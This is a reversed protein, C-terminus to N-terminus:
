FDKRNSLDKGKEMSRAAQTNDTMDNKEEKYASDSQTMIGYKCGSVHNDELRAQISHLFIGARYNERMTNGIVLVEQSLGALNLGDGEIDAERSGGVGRVGEILNNKIFIKAGGGYVQIGYASAGSIQNEELNLANQPSADQQVDHITIARYPHTMFINKFIQGTVFGTTMLGARRNNSFYNRQITSVVARQGVANEIWLGNAGINAAPLNQGLGSIHNNELSVNLAQTGSSLAKSESVHIGHWPSDLVVNARIDLSAAIAWLRVSAVLFQQPTSVGSRQGNHEWANENVWVKNASHLILGSTDNRFFSNGQLTIEGKGAILAGVGALYTTQKNGIKDGTQALRPVCLNAECFHSASCGGACGPAQEGSRSFWGRPGNEAVYNGQLVVRHSQDINVAVTDQGTVRHSQDINVAIHDQQVPHHSQDINVAIDDKGPSIRLGGVANHTIQNRALTVEAAGQIVLGFQLAQIQSRYGQVIRQKPRHSQDINVSVQGENVLLGPIRHSQDINVSVTDKGAVRHSQDINVSVTDQPQTSLVGGNYTFVSNQVSVKGQGSLWAGTLLNATHHSQDINVSVFDRIYLGHGYGSLVLRKITISGVTSFRLTAYNEVFRNPLPAIIVTGETPHNSQGEITLDQSIKEFHVSEVYRGKAIRVLTIQANNQVARVAEQLTEVEQGKGVCLVSAEQCRAFFSNDLTSPPNPFAAPQCGRSCVGNPDQQCPSGTFTSQPSSALEHPCKRPAVQPSKMNGAPIEPPQSLTEFAAGGDQQNDTDGSDQLSTSSWEEQPIRGDPDFFSGAGCGVLSWLGGCLVLCFVCLLISNRLKM